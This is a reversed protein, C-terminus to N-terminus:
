ATAPEDHRHERARQFFGARQSIQYVGPQGAASEAELGLKGGGAFIQRTVLFAADRPRTSGVAPRAPDSLQRPLRLQPRSTPTTKTFGCSRAKRSSKTGRHACEALIQEGAKEHAVLQRLTTCEPTAYEPHAHDNYFRAGNALVLDSKIEELSLPWNRDIEFYAAEDTDQLLKAARFVRADRHPDELRYDWKMLAGRETYSRVLEISEAVVDVSM